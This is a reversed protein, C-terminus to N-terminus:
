PICNHQCVSKKWHFGLMQHHQSAEDAENCQALQNHREIYDRRLFKGDFNEHDSKVLCFDPTASLRGDEIVMNNLPTWNKAKERSTTRGSHENGMLATNFAIIIPRSGIAIAAVKNIM